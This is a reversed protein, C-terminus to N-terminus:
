WGSEHLLIKPDTEELLRVIATREDPARVEACTNM